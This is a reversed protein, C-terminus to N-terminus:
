PGAPFAIPVVGAGTSTRGLAFLEQRRERLQRNLKM